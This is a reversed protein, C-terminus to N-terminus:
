AKRPRRAALVIVVVAGAAVVPLYGSFEPINTGLTVDMTQVAEDNATTSTSGTAADKKVDVTITYGIDWQSMEFTVTYFGAANTADYFQTAKLVAGDYMRVTVNVGPVPIGGLDRVTGDIIKPFLSATVNRAPLVATSVPVAVVAAVVLLVVLLHKMNWRRVPHTYMFSRMVQELIEKDIL